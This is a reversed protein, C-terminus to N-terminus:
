KIEGEDLRRFFSNWENIGIQYNIAKEKGYKKILDLYFQKATM